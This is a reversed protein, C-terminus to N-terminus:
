NPIDFLSRIRKEVIQIYVVYEDKEKKVKELEDRLQNYVSIDVNGANTKGDPKNKQRSRQLKQYEDRLISIEEKLDNNAQELHLLSDRLSICETEYKMKEKQLAEASDYIKAIDSVLHEKVGVSLTHVIDVKGGVPPIDKEVLIDRKIDLLIEKGDRIFSVKTASMWSLMTHKLTGKLGGFPMPEYYTYHFYIKELPCRTKHIAESLKKIEENGIDCGYLIIESLPLESRASTLMKALIDIGFPSLRTNSLNIYKVPSSTYLLMAALTQIDKDDLNVHGLYINSLTDDHNRLRELYIQLVDDDSRKKDPASSSPTMDTDKSPVDPMTNDIIQDSSSEPYSLNKVCGSDRTVLKENELEKLSKCRQTGDHPAVPVNHSCIKRTIRYLSRSVGDDSISHKHICFVISPLSRNNEIANELKRIIPDPIRVGYFDFTDLPIKTNAIM